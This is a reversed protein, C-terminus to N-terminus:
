IAQRKNVRRKELKRKSSEPRGACRMGSSAGQGGGRSLLGPYLGIGIELKWRLCAPKTDRAVPVSYEALQM